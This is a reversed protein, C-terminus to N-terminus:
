NNVNIMLAPDTEEVQHQTKPPICQKGIAIITEM